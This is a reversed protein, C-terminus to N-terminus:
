GETEDHDNSLDNEDNGKLQHQAQSKKKAANAIAFLAILLLLTLKYARM